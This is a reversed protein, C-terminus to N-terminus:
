KLYKGCILMLDSGPELSETLEDVNSSIEAKMEFITEPLERFKAMEDIIYLCEQNAAIYRRGAEVRERCVTKVSGHVLRRGDITARFAGQAALSRKQCAALRQFAMDYPDLVLETTSESVRNQNQHTQISPSTFPCGALLVLAGFFVMIHYM